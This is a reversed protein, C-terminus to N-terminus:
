RTADRGATLQYGQGQQQESRQAYAPEVTYERVQLDFM